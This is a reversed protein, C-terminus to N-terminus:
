QALARHIADALRVAAQQLRREVDDEFEEQYGADLSVPEATPECVAVDEDSQWRCYRATATTTIAYSEQAWELPSQARWENRMQPTIRARLSDAYAQWSQPKRARDIMGTDWVAHLDEQWYYDGAVQVLNGGRDDAYSVHLPQHVDGIWHALLLLAEARKWPALDRDRLRASHYEIAEVVCDDGCHGDSVEDADRPVNLFHWRNFRNFFAWGPVHGTANSRARDAFTCSLPFDRGYSYGAPHRPDARTEYKETAELVTERDSDDLLDLAMQCVVMHGVNGWGWASAPRSLCCIALFSAACALRASRWQEIRFELANM